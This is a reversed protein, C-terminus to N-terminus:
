RTPRRRGMVGPMGGRVLSIKEDLTMAAILREVDERTM